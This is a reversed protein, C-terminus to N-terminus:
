SWGHTLFPALLADYARPVADIRAGDSERNLYLHGVHLKLAHRIPAPIDAPDDGYGAVFTVVVADDRDYTAPWSQDRHLQVYGTLSDTVVDYTSGALTVEADTGDRYVISTVSQLPAEPLDLRRGPPFEALTLAMTQTILRRGLIGQRGGNGELHGRCTDLLAAILDDESSHDVRLHAKVEALTLPPQAPAVTQRLRM